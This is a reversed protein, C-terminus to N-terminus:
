RWTGIEKTHPPAPDAIVRSDVEDYNPFEDPDIREYVSLDDHSFVWKPQTM